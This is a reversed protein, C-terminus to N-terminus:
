DTKSNPTPNPNPNTARPLSPNLNPNTMKQTLTLTPNPNTARPLSTPLPIHLHVLFHMYNASDCVRSGHLHARISILHRSVRKFTLSRRKWHRRMMPQPHRGHTHMVGEYSLCRSVVSDISERVAAHLLSWWSVAHGDGRCPTAIVVVFVVIM